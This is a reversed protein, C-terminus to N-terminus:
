RARPNPMLRFIQGNLSAILVDGNRPDRGFSSVAPVHAIERVHDAHVPRNGDPELAWISGFVYDAFLYKGELAPLGKGHYVFGGTISAGGHHPYDWIPNVFKTGAPPEGRFPYNGERYNWGYNGGRVILDVEEHLEQGVDACWLKGTAPDFSMRWPNRLGVAWFETHVKVPDVPRGDFRTAGVFPNDPPVAYTGPLVSPHPNPPLSGPRRDVDLRLIGSFFDKDIRQSNEYRDNAGGEDGLSLYLYGDPGFLLEGGNHNPAEDAQAILQVESGTDATNGDAASILFRSLRDERDTRFARSHCSTYWVYIQRNARWQPHFALALVGQEVDDDGVKERWDLFVRPEPKAAAPDLVLIRGPKEIIFVRTADGPASVIALPQNFKHGGFAPVTAYPLDAARAGFAFMIAAVAFATHVARLPPPM